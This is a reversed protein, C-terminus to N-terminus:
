AGFLGADFDAYVPVHDSAGYVEHRIECATCKEDAVRDSVIFSDIRWGIGKARCQGRWGYYTFHGKADPHKERWVDRFRQGEAGFSRVGEDGGALFAHHADCEAQTYGASKNWKQKAKSLDREDLVVNLDGTWIVPKRADLSTIHRSLSAQWRRKTDLSKLGEGANVCYTGVVFCGEFELTLCRSKTEYDWPEDDGDNCASAPIGKVISLPKMKSLVAIGAYSKKAGDGGIGWAQFPYREKQFFAPVENVKTESLVVVDADEAELYRVLGKPEASKLSVINWSAIRVSSAPRPTSSLILPSPVTTNLPCGDFSVLDEKSTPAAPSPSPSADGNTAAGADDAKTKAKKKPPPSAPAAPEAAKKTTQSKSKGKAPSTTAAAQSATSTSKRKKEPTTVATSALTASTASATRSSRRPPM